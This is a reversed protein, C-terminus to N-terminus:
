LLRTRLVRGMVPTHPLRSLRSRSSALFASSRVDSRAIGHRCGARGVPTAPSVIVADRRDSGDNGTQRQRPSPLCPPTRQCYRHSGSLSRERGAFGLETRSQGSTVDRPARRDGHAVGRRPARLAVRAHPQREGVSPRFPVVALASADRPNARCRCSQRRRLPAGVGSLQPSRVPHNYVERRLTARPVRKATYGM